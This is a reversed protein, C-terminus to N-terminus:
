SGQPGNQGAPVGRMFQRLFAIVDDTLVGALAALDGASNLQLLTQVDSHNRAALVQRVAADSLRANCAGLAAEIERLVGDFDSAGPPAGMRAGCTECYPREVLALDEERVPCEAVARSLEEWREVLSDDPGPGLEPILGFRRVAILRRDGVSVRRLLERTLARRGAHFELYVRRYRRRWREIDMRVPPWLEPREILATLSIRARLAEAEVAAPQDGRGFDAEELYAACREIDLADEGARRLRRASDLARRLADVSGYESRVREFYDRWSRASLAIVLKETDTRVARGTEGLRRELRELVSFSLTFRGETEELASAFAETATQGGGGARAAQAEPM